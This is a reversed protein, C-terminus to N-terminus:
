VCYELLYYKGTSIEKGHNETYFYIRVGKEFVFCIASSPIMDKDAQWTSLHLTRIKIVFLLFIEYSINTENSLWINSSFSAFYSNAESAGFFWPNIALGTIEIGGSLRFQIDNISGFILGLFHSVCSSNSISITHEHPATISIRATSKIVQSQMRNYTRM